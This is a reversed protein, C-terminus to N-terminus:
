PEDYCISLYPRIKLGFIVRHVSMGTCNPFNLPRADM